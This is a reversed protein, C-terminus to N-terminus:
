TDIKGVVWKRLVLLFRTGNLPWFTQSSLVFPIFVFLFHRVAGILRPETRGIKLAEKRRKLFFLLGSVIELTQWSHADLPAKGFIRYKSRLWVCHAVLLLHCVIFSLLIFKVPSFFPLIANCNDEVYVIPRKFSKFLVGETTLTGAARKKKPMM